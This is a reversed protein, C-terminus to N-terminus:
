LGDAALSIGFGFSLARFGKLCLGAACVFLKCRGYQVGSIAYTCEGTNRLFGIYM